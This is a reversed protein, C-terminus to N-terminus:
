NGSNMSISNLFFALLKRVELFSELTFNACSEGAGIKISCSNKLGSLVSFMDEDTKDDGIAMIYDYNNGSILYEAATGKSVYMSMIELVMNGPLMRLNHELCIENLEASMKKMYGNGTGPPLNRFHWSMSTEKVELISGPVRKQYKELVQLVLPKWGTKIEVLPEWIDNVKLFSGHEAVIDIKMGDLLGDISNRSRGTIIVPRVGKMGAMNMLLKKLGVSIRVKKHDSNFDVLTGDFDLLFLRNAAIRINSLEHGVLMKFADSEPM